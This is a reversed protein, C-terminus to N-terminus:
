YTYCSGGIFERLHSTPPIPSDDEVPTITQLLAHVRRARMWADQRDPDHRFDKVWQGFHGILRPRMVPLEYALAGNVIYDTTNIYPIIHRMESSRVYHWHTLTQRPDYARHSADRVMRRMLRLDTWRVFRGDDGKMQLLTEIYLKFKSTDPVGETMAGYLGHLSDILVIEGPGIGMPTTQDTRKGSKFDYYPVRIQKGALLDVLHQNILDLELAQPTEFDYDGYEDKPHMELDFFYNDINLAVLSLGARKLREGLKITTTTKGSSSPGAIIVIKVEDRRETILDAAAAIDEEYAADSERVIDPFEGRGIRENLHGVTHVCHDVSWTLVEWIKRYPINQSDRNRASIKSRRRRSQEYRYLIYTKATRAHGNEILIKEVVDQVDEVTPIEGPPVVQRLYEIVQQTLSEAISRDRGGVAVAARYIANTIRDPNFTVVTGNRKIVRQIATM